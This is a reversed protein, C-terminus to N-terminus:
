EEEAQGLASARQAVRIMNQELRLRERDFRELPAGIAMAAIVNGNPGFIPSSVGASDPLLEGRSVSLGSELIHDLEDRLAKKSAITQPTRREFKVTKMYDTVFADPAHALLVRGAATCYLPRRLGIHMSYRVSQESEIVDVYTIEKHEVDLVGIYVTENTSKSLDALFPRLMKSFNWAAMVGASLRFISPGLRYRGADHMLFGEAVLPRLLNLLSSKPSELAVNLEALSMGEPSKALVDFIGLLRTLSRPGSVDRDAPASTEKLMIKGM